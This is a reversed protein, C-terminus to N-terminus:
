RQGYKNLYFDRMFECDERSLEIAGGINAAMITAQASKECILAIKITEKLTSGAALLGHNSLIVAQRDRLAEVVVQGLDDSGPLRYDSVRVDGGVIQVLDECSAPIPKRAIAMATCHVSHTHVIANIDPRNKYIELHMPLEISPKMNGDILNGEMDVIPINEPLMKEYEVGTPTIAVLEEGAIRVSLNGWTGIVLSSKLITLSTDIIEKRAIQHKLSM